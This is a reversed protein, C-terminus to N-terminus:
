STFGCVTMIGQGDNRAQRAKACGSHDNASYSRGVVCAKGVATLSWLVFPAPSPLNM